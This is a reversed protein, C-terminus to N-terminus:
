NLILKNKSDSKILLLIFYKVSVNLGMSDALFNRALENEDRDSDTELLAEIPEVHQSINDEEDEQM